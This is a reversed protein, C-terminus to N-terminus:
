DFVLPTISSTDGSWPNLKASLDVVIPGRIIMKVNYSKGAVYKSATNVDMWYDSNFINGSKDKLIVRVQYKYAADTPVPLIIGEGITTETMQVFHTALPKDNTDLLQLNKLNNDWDWIITGENAANSYDAITLTGKTPVSRVLITDVGMKLASEYSGKADSDAVCSFTLRMMCHKLELAPIESAHSPNRFYKACYADSDTAETRGWLVDKTGDITIKAQRTTSTSILNNGSVYPYYGYFRYGHWNGTPYWRVNGDVWNMDTRSSDANIKANTLVNDMWVSYQTAEKGSTWNIPYETKNVSLYSKALCFVGLSDLNFLGESTSEVSSRTSSTSSALQIKVDSNSVTINQQSTPDLSDGSESSCGSMLAAVAISFFIVKKTM